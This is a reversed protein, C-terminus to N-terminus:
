EEEGGVRERAQEGSGVLELRFIVFCSFADFSMAPHRMEAKLTRSGDFAPVEEEEEVGEAGSSKVQKVDPISECIPCCAQEVEGAPFRM